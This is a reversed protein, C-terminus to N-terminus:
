LESRLISPFGRRTALDYVRRPGTLSEENPRHIGLLSPSGAGM